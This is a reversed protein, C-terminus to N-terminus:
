PLVMIPYSKQHMLHSQCIYIYIYMSLAVAINFLWTGAFSILLIIILKTLNSILFALSKSYIKVSHMYTWPAWIESSWKPLGRLDGFECFLKGWFLNYYGTELHAVFQLPNFRRKRKRKEIFWGLYLIMFSEPHVEGKVLPKEKKNFYFHQYGGAGGGWERRCFKRKVGGGRAYYIDCIVFEEIFHWLHCGLM